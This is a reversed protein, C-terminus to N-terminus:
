SISNVFYIIFPLFFMGQYDVYHNQEFYLVFIEEYVYTCIHTKSSASFLHYLSKTRKQIPFQDGYLECEVCTWENVNYLKLCFPGFINISWTFTSKKHM